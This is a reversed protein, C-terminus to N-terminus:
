RGYQGYSRGCCEVEMGFRSHINLASQYDIALFAPFHYETTVPKVSHNSVEGIIVVGTLPSSDPEGTGRIVVPYAIRIYM